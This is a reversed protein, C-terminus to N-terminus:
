EIRQAGFGNRVSEWEAETVWYYGDSERWVERGNSLTFRVDPDPHDFRVTVDKEDIGWARLAQWRMVELWQAASSPLTISKLAQSTSDVQDSHRGNPFMTMEHLYERLWPAERPLWVTGAEITPTQAQMRMEKSGEVKVPTIQHLGQHRLEQVLQTGAPTGDTAWLALGGQLNATFLISSGVKGIEDTNAFYQSQSIVVPLQDFALLQTTGAATGDTTWLGADPSDGNVAFYAQGDVNTMAVPDVAKVLSTGAATGDSRWLAAGHAVDTASFLALGNYDILNGPNSFAEVTNIDKVLSASLLLRSEVAEAVCRRRPSVRVFRKSSSKILGSPADATAM